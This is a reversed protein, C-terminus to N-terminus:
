RATPQPRALWGNSKMWAYFEESWLDSTTGQHRMGFGHGGHEYVHLEFPARAKQWDDVLAFGGLPLLPDDAAHAVFLPPAHPPVTVPGMPGYITAIFDPRADAANRLAVELVTDAGASFGVMGIRAPDIGWEAARGRVLRLARQADDVALTSSPLPPPIAGPPRPMFMHRTLADFAAPSAPTPNLRYKLVFAAIGRAALWHAVEYGENQMSLVMFGGGPAVIVAAGTARDRAPLIPTLTPRTVNRAVQDHQVSAWQEKQTTHESGPAVGPYLPIAGPQAPTPIPTMVFAAPNPAQASASSSTVAAAIAILLTAWLSRDAKV